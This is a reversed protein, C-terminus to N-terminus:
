KQVLVIDPSTSSSDRLSINWKRGFVGYHKVPTVIQGLQDHPLSMVSNEVIPNLFGQGFKTGFKPYHLPSGNDPLNYM